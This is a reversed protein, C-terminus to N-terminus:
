KPFVSVVRDAIAYTREAGNPRIECGGTAAGFAPLLGGSPAFHYVPLRLTGTPLRYRLVPHVHGALVYGLQRAGPALAALDHCFVFPPECLHEPIWKLESGLAEITRDHNGRVVLINCGLQMCAVTFARWQILWPETGKVASHVLDGLVLLRQAAFRQIQTILVSFDAHTDGSPVAIGHSRLTHAKGLHVDAVLLTNARPWYIVRATTLILTEGCLQISLDSAIM